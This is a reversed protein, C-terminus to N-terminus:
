VSSLPDTASSPSFTISAWTSTTSTQHMTRKTLVTSCCKFSFSQARLTLACALLRAGASAGKRERVPGLV